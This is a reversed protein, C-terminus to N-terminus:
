FIDQMYAYYSYIKSLTLNGPNEPERTTDLIMWGSSSSDERKIMVFAPRFGTYVFPGDDNGNGTYSGFKSFGEVSHWIYAIMEDDHGSSGNTANANGVTFM